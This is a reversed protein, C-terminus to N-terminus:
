PSPRVRVPRPRPSTPSMDCEHAAAEGHGLLYIPKQSSSKLVIWGAHVVAGGGDTVLCCDLKRFRVAIMRSSLVEDVDLPDRLVDLWTRGM